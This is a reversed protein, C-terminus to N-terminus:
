HKLDRYDRISDRLYTFTRTALAKTLIDALQLNTPVHEIEMQGETVLDRVYHYRLDIHKTRTSSANSEALLKCSINDEYIKSPHKIIQPIGTVECIENVLQRYFQLERACESLAYYESECSSLAVSKQTISRWFILNRNAFILTGSTSKRNDGSPGWNADSYAKLSDPDFIHATLGAEGDGYYNLSFNRTGKLYRVLRKADSFQQSSPKSSFRALEKVAFSIDYRTSTALFGCMGVLSRYNESNIKSTESDIDDDTKMMSEVAM